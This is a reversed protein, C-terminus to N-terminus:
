GLKRTTHDTVTGPEAFIPERSDKPFDVGALAEDSSPLADPLESTNLNGVRNENQEIERPKKTKFVTTPFLFGIGMCLLGSALVALFVLKGYTQPYLGLDRVGGHLLGLVLGLIFLGTGLKIANSNPRTVIESDNVAEGSVFERIRTLSLGCKRCYLTKQPFPKACRPCYMEAAM